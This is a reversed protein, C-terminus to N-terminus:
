NILLTFQTKRCLNILFKNVFLSISFVNAYGYSCVTSALCHVRFCRQLPVLHSACVRGHCRRCLRFRCCMFSYGFTTTRNFNDILLVLLLDEEHVAEIARDRERERVIRAFARCLILKFGFSMASDINGGAPPISM